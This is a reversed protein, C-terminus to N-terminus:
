NSKFIARFEERFIKRLRVKVYFIQYRNNNFKNIHKISLGDLVLYNINNKNLDSLDKFKIYNLIDKDVKISMYKGKELFIVMTDKYVLKTFKYRYM